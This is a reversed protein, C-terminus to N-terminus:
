ELFWHSYLIFQKGIYCQYENEKLSYGIYYM